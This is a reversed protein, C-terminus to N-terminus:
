QYNGLNIEDFHFITPQQPTMPGLGEALEQYSIIIIMISENLQKKNKPLLTKLLIYRKILMNDINM